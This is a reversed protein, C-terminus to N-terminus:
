FDLGAGAGDDACCVMLFDPCGANILRCAECVEADMAECAADNWVSAIGGLGDCDLDPLISDRGEGRDIVVEVERSTARALHIIDEADCGEATVELRHYGPGLAGFSASTAGKPTYAIARQDGGGMREDVDPRWQGDGDIDLYIILLGLAYLGGGEAAQLAAKPPHTYISLTYRAPFLGNTVTQERMSVVPNEFTEALTGTTWLIALRLDGTPLKAAEEDEGGDRVWISGELRLLEEGLYAGDVLPDGCGWLLLAVGWGWLARM